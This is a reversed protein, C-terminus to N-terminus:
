RLLLSIRAESSSEKEGILKKKQKKELVLLDGRLVVEPVNIALFLNTIKRALINRHVEYKESLELHYKKKDDASVKM